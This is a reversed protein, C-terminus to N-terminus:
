GRVTGSLDVTVGSPLLGIPAMNLVTKGSGSEGVIALVEGEGVDFSVRDVARVSTQETYLTVTFDRVSLLPSATPMTM